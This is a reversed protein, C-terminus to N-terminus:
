EVAATEEELVEAEVLLADSARDLRVLATGGNRSLEGFLVMEALPKKISEQILRELPRAGMTIDYGKEVLWRRADEDVDLNVRKEDLQSQLETLFKDVM